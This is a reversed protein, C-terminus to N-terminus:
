TVEENSTAPRSPTFSSAKSPDKMLLTAKRIQRQFRVQAAAAGGATTAAAAVWTARAAKRRLAAAARGCSLVVM